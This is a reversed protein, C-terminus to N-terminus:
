SDNSPPLVNVSTQFPPLAADNPIVSTASSGSLGDATYADANSLPAHRRDASSPDAVGYSKRCIKAGCYGPPPVSRVINASVTLAPCM